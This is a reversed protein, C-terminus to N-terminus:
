APDTGEARGRNLNPEEERMVKPGILVTRAPKRARVAARTHATDPLNADGAAVREARKRKADVWFISGQQTWAWANAITTETCARWSADAEDPWPLGHRGSETKCTQAVCVRM